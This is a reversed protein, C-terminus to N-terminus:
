CAAPARVAGGPPGEIEANERCGTLKTSELRALQASTWRIRNGSVSYARCAPRKTPLPMRKTDRTDRIDRDKSVLLLKLGEETGDAAV